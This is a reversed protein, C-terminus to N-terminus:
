FRGKGDMKSKLSCVLSDELVQHSRRINDEKQIYTAERSGIGELKETIINYLRKKELYSYRSVSCNSHERRLQKVTLMADSDIRLHIMLMQMIFYQTRCKPRNLM